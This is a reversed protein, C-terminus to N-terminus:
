SLPRSFMLKGADDFQRMFVSIVASALLLLIFPNNFQDLYKKWLPDPKSVTVELCNLFVKKEIGVSWNFLSSHKSASVKFGLTIIAPLGRLRGGSHLQPLSTIDVVTSQGSFAKYLVLVLENTL